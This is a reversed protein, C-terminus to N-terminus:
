VYGSASLYVNGGPPDGIDFHVTVNTQSWAELYVYGPGDITVNGATGDGWASLYSYDTCEGVNWVTFVVTNGTSNAGVTEESGDPGVAAAIGGNCEDQPQSPLTDRGMGSKPTGQARVSQPFFVAFAVLAM